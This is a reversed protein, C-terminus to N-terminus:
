GGALLRVVIRAVMLVVHIFPLMAGVIILFHSRNVAVSTAGEMMHRFFYFRAELSVFFQLTAAGSPM